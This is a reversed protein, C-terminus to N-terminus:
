VEMPHHDSNVNDGIRMEKVSEKVEKDSLVYNIVTSESAGTRANRRKIAELIKMLFKKVGRKM